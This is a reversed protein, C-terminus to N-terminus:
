TLLSRVDDVPIPAPKGLDYFCASSYPYEARDTVLKWGKDLPNNHCYEVKQRLVDPTFINEDHTSEWILHDRDRYEAAARQFHALLDDRSDQRMQKLLEHSTYSAFQTRVQKMTLPASPRAIFHVHTPMVVYAYLNMRNHCRLWNWSNLVIWAYATTLFIPAHGAVTCTVFYLHGEVHVSPFKM